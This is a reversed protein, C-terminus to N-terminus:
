CINCQKNMGHQLILDGWKPSNGNFYLKNQLTFTWVQKETNRFISTFYYHFQM